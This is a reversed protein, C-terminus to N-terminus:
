SGARLAALSAGCACTKPVTTKHYIRECEPCVRADPEYAIVKDSKYCHKGVLQLPTAPVGEGDDKNRRGIAERQEDSLDVKEAIRESAEHLLWAAADPLAKLSFRITQEVGADDKGRVAVAEDDWFVAEIKWWPLRKNGREEAVGGSGVRVATAGSTGIWIAVGLVVAGAALVWPAYAWPELAEAGKRLSSGFQGWFGAGLGVSGVAGIAYVLSPSTTSRPVFRREWRARGGQKKKSVKAM